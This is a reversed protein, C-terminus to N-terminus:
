FFIFLTLLIKGSNPHTARYTLVQLLKIKWLPLLKGLRLGGGQNRGEVSQKTLNNVRGTARAHIKDKVMHKLRQYYVPGIFITTNLMEGTYGNYMVEEGNREFGFSELVDGVEERDFHTFPTADKTEAQLCAAKGFICELMQGVTMRSPLAHPNMVIDPVMGSDTFPMDEEPLILGITAKQAARSNGSWVPIGNRRVYIVGSPVTVCYVKGSYKVIQDNTEDVNIEPENM